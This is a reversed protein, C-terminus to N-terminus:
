VAPEQISVIIPGGSRRKDAQINHAPKSRSQSSGLRIDPNPVFRVLRAPRVIDTSQPPGSTVPRVDFRRSQGLDSKAKPRRPHWRRECRAGDANPVSVNELKFPKGGPSRLIRPM